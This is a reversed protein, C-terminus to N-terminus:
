ICGFLCEFHECSQVLQVAYGVELRSSLKWGLLSELYNRTYHQTTNAVQRSLGGATRTNVVCLPQNPELGTWFGSCRSRPLGLGSGFGVVRPTQRIQSSGDTQIAPKVNQTECNRMANLYVVALRLINVKTHWHGNQICQSGYFDSCVSIRESSCRSISCWHLMLLQQGQIMNLWLALHSSNNVYM